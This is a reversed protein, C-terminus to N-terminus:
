TKSEFHYTIGAHATLTFPAAYQGAHEDSGDIGKNLHMFHLTHQGPEVRLRGLHIPSDLQQENLRLLQMSPPFILIAHPASPQPQEPGPLTACSLLAAVGALMWLCRTTWKM